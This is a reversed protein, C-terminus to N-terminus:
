IDSGEVPWDADMWLTWGNVLVRVNTFGQELLALALDHSLECTEGDCYTIIPTEKAVGTLVQSALTAVQETPLSRAGKIHGTEFWIQPRADLFLAQGSDHLSKADELSIILGEGSASALRAEPSWNGILPLGNPRLQNVALSLVVSVLVIIAAQAASKKLTKAHHNM